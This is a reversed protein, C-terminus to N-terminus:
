NSYALMGGSRYPGGLVRRSYGITFYEIGRKSRTESHISEIKSGKVPGGVNLRQVADM